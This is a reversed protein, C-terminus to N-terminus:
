SENVFNTYVVEETRLNFLHNGDTQKSSFLCPFVKQRSFPTTRNQSIQDHKKRGYAIMIDQWFCNGASGVLLTQCQYRSEPYRCFCRFYNKTRESRLNQTRIWAHMFRPGYQRAAISLSLPLFTSLFSLYFRFQNRDSLVTPKIKSRIVFTNYTRETFM